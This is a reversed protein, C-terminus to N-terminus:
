ALGSGFLREDLEGGVHEVAATPLAWSFTLGRLPNSIGSSVRVREAALHRFVHKQSRRALPSFQAFAMGYAFIRCPRFM